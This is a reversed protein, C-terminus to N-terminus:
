SDISSPTQRPEHSGTDGVIFPHRLLEATPKRAHPDRQLMSRLFSALSQSSETGFDSPLRESLYADFSDHMVNDDDLIQRILNKHEENIQEKTLGFSGMAFLPENTALQFILCGLAWVDIRADWVKQAILEPARLAIPTVALKDRTGWTAGGLDGIKIKLTSSEADDLCGRTRQSTMLYQPATDTVVTAGEIWKVPSFEPPQLSLESSTSGVLSFM